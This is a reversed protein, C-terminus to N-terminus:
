TLSPGNHQQLIILQQKLVVYQTVRAKSQCSNACLSGRENTSGEATKGEIMQHQQITARCFPVQRHLNRSEGDSLKGHAWGLTPWNCL